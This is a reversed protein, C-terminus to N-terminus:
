EDEPWNKDNFLFDLAVVIRHLAIAMVLVVIAVIGVFVDTIQM